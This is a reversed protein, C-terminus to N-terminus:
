PPPPRGGPWQPAPAGQDDQDGGVPATSKSSLPPSAPAPTAVSVRFIWDRYSTAHAFDISDTASVAAIRVPPDNSSSHVGVIGGQPTRVLGWQIRGTMPDPYLRRLYRAPEIRDGPGLLQTLDTPYPQPSGAHAKRYSELARRFEGGIFLLERERDRQAAFNWATAAKAAFVGLLIILLLAALYTFGSQAKRTRSVAIM